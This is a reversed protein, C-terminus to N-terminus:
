HGRRFGFWLDSVTAEGGARAAATPSSPAAGRPHIFLWAEGLIRSPERFPTPWVWVKMDLSRRMEFLDLLKRRSPGLGPDVNLPSSVGSGTLFFSPYVVAERREFRWRSERHLVTGGFQLRGDTIGGLHLCPSTRNPPDFIERTNPNQQLVLPSEAEDAIAQLCINGLLFSRIEVRNSSLNSYFRVMDRWLRQGTLDRSAWLTWLLQQKATAVQLLCQLIVCVTLPHM